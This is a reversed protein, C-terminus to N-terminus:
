FSFKKQETLQFLVNEYDPLMKLIPYIQKEVYHEYDLEGPTPDILPGSKTIYYKVLSGKKFHSNKDRRMKDRAAKVHPPINKIYLEPDKGLRKSYLLMSDVEGAYIREKYRKTISFLDAGNFFAEIVDQQYKKAIETWDSRVSEMGKFVLKSTNNVYVEGVYRKKSGIAQGRITPMFFNHYLTEFEIELYSTLQYAEACHKQWHRNVAEVLRDAEAQCKQLSWSDPLKVFTSDTDGYIVDLGRSEIVQKTTQMIEHGRLTISSSLRPDYFRCGKSGLVGYLSNMIIKIAQSLMSDDDQKAQQRADTLQAVIRPLHHLDRSFRGEHFGEVANKPNRLGEILGMPDICFTRIISPYLSKFDLVIVNKYLGPKSEMVYGGPSEFSLGHECLNPAVYGSRHLMPLYFNTFAAVSGGMRELELGTLQSRAIAFDILKLKSFIALVLECDKLNYAALTLKDENFQRIIEELRDDQEILKTEGLVKEAVNALRFSDFHYTANKLTDIGDIVVRGPILVRVYNGKYVDIPRDDRGLILDIGLMQAREALVVFDFEIINWGIIVDPNFDRMKDMLVHLLECEDNVWEIYSHDSSSDPGVPPKGIMIVSRYQESVLGISFLVGEGDCEIDLSLVTFQPKFTPNAKFKASKLLTYGDCQVQTGQVWAGGRVFREMLFRDCHRIDEEYLTIHAALLQKAQHYTRNDDCYCAIMSQQDFHKLPVAKFQMNANAQTVLLQAKALQSSRIFFVAQENEVLAKVIGSETKLWYCLALRGQHNTQQRSLIFGEYVAQAM